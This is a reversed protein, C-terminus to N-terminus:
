KLERLGARKIAEIRYDNYQFAWNMGFRRIMEARCDEKTKGEIVVYRGKHQQGYGFTFIQTILRKKAM